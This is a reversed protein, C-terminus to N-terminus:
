RGQASVEAAIRHDEVGGNKPGGSGARAGRPQGASTGRLAELTGLAEAGLAAPPGTLLCHSLPHMALQRRAAHRDRFDFAPTRQLRGQPVRDRRSRAMLRAARTTRPAKANARARRSCNGTSLRASPRPLAIARCPSPANTSCAWSGFMVSAILLKTPSTRVESM